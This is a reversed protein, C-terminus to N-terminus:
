QCELKIYILKVPLIGFDGPTVFLHSIIKANIKGDHRTGFAVKNMVQQNQFTREKM